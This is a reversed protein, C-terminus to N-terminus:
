VGAKRQSQNIRIGLMRATNIIVKKTDQLLMEELTFEEMETM